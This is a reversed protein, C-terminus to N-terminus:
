IDLSIENNLKTHPLECQGFIHCIPVLKGTSNSIGILREEQIMMAQLLQTVSRAKIDEYGMGAYQAEFSVNNELGYGRFAAFYEAQTQGIVGARAGEALGARMNTNNIATFAKWNAQIAFGGGLRPVTNRLPTLVPFLNLAPAQLNYYQLGSTASAPQTFSKAIGDDPTAQASKMLAIIENLDQAGM